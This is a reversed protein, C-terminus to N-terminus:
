IIVKEAAFLSLSYVNLLRDDIIIEQLFTMLDEDFTQSNTLHKGFQVIEGVARPADKMADDLAKEYVTQDAV